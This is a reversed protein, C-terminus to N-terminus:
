RHEFNSVHSGEKGVLVCRRGIMRQTVTPLFGRLSWRTIDADRWLYPLCGTGAGVTCNREQFLLVRHSNSASRGKKNSATRERAARQTLHTTATRGGGDSRPTEHHLWGHGVTGPSWRHGKNKMQSWITHKMQTRRDTRRNSSETCGLMCAYLTWNLGPACSMVAPCFLNCTQCMYISLCAHSPNWLLHAGLNCSFLDHKIVADGSCALSVANQELFPISVTVPLPKPQKEVQEELAQIEPSRQLPRDGTHAELGQSNNEVILTLQFGFWYLRM